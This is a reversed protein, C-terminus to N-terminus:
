LKARVKDVFAVIWEKAKEAEQELWTGGAALHAELEAIQAKHAEIKAQIEERLTM